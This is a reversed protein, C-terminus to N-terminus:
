GNKLKLWGERIEQPGHFNPTTEFSGIQWSALFLELKPALDESPFGPSEPRKNKPVIVAEDGDVTIWGKVVLDDWLGPNQGGFVEELEHMKFHGMTSIEKWARKEMAAWSWHFGPEDPLSINVQSQSTLVPATLFSVELAKLEDAYLDVPLELEQIPLVGCTAHVAGHPDMLLSFRIGPANNGDSGFTLTDLIPHDTDVSHGDDTRHLSPLRFCDGKYAEGDDADEWFGILGDNLQHDEGLRLPLAVNEVDLTLEPVLDPNEIVAQFQSWGQHIAPHGNLELQAQARVLALPRSMLMAVGEGAHDGREPEVKHLAMEVLQIFHPITDSIGNNEAARVKAKDELWCVMRRLHRNDIGEPLIQEAHGPFTRWHGEQDLYGLGTGKRDYIMLSDDLYNLLVWGCVPSSAPHENREVDDDDASLWNFNLRAGQTIRPALHIHNHDLPRLPESALVANNEIDKVHALKLGFTDLLRLEVLSMAGSRIPFFPNNPLTSAHNLLGVADSVKKTFEQYEPYGLPDSIDLQFGQRNMLLAQTLGGLSQSLYHTEDLTECAIIALAIHKSEWLDLSPEQGEAFTVGAADWGFYADFNAQVRFWAMSPQIANQEIFKALWPDPPTTFYFHSFSEIRELTVDPKRDKEAIQEAVYWVSLDLKELATKLFIELAQKVNKGADPTLIATGWFNQGAATFDINEKPDFDFKNMALSYNDQVYSPNYGTLEGGDNVSDKVPFYEVLWDLLLPHCSRENQTKMPFIDARKRILHILNTLSGANDPNFDLDPQYLCALLGDQGHKETLRLDDGALLVVPDTPRWFNQYPKQKLELGSHVPIAATMSEMLKRNVPLHDFVLHEELDEGPSASRSRQTTMEMLRGPVSIFQNIIVLLQAEPTEQMIEEIAEMTLPDNSRSMIDFILQKMDSIDEAKLLWFSEVHARLQQALNQRQQNLNELRPLHEAEMYFRAEDPDPYEDDSGDPPYQCLMFKSWDAYIQQRLSKIQSDTRDFDLQLSNLQHLYHALEYPLSVQEASAEEANAQARNLPPRMVWRWGGRESVFGQEHRRENFKPGIDTELHELSSTFQLSELYEEIETKKGNSMKDSLFTALAETSTNGMALKLNAAPAEQWTGSGVTIQSACIMNWPLMGSLDPGSDMRQLEDLDAGFDLQLEEKYLSYYAKATEDPGVRNPIDLNLIRLYDWDPMAYYGTIQYVFGQDLTDISDDHFGFVSHCNPYFAAFTPDGYGTATLPESLYEGGEWERLLPSGVNGGNLPDVWQYKRGLWGFPADTLQRRQRPFAVATQSDGKDAPALYDSEVVWKKEPIAPNVSTRTILWRNPVPPMQTGAPELLYRVKLIAKGMDPNSTLLKSIGVDIKEPDAVISAFSDNSDLGKVWGMEIFQGYLKDANWHDEEDSFARRLAGLDLMPHLFSRTLADPLAWHLHVGKKLKFDGDKFPISQIEEGLYAVYPNVDHQGNFFPLRSFDLRAEACSIDKDLFLVDLHIPIVLTNNNM